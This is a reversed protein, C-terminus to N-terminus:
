SASGESGAPDPPRDPPNRTTLVSCRRTGRPHLSASAESFAMPPCHPIILQAIRSRSVKADMVRFIHVCRRHSQMHCFPHQGQRQIGVKGHLIHVADALDDQLLFQLILLSLATRRTDTGPPNKTPCPLFVECIPLQKGRRLPM